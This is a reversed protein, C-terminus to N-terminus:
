ITKHADAFHMMADHMFQALGKAVKEYTVKFREDQVYMNALGRYIELNPEYFARLGDYHKAIREQVSDSTPADGQRMCEAIEETLKKGEVLVKNLGEKGMKKVREESQKWSETHGWKEKAEKKLRDMEEKSFNGYLEKDDMTAEKNIKKITTDITKMLGGLRKKKLDILKKQDRLAELMDFSPASLIRRIDELSFDLERFFLIQQLRLLEEEEYYRYGNHKVRAPKLLGVSDYHHLTRVSVGALTALQQVTYSM